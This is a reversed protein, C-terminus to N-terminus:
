KRSIDVLARMFRWFKGTKLQPPAPGDTQQTSTTASGTDVHGLQGVSEYVFRRPALNVGVRKEIENVARMALLSHGGLEFFNDSLSVHPVGLLEQWVEAIARELPTRPATTHRAERRADRPAPLARLDVKGGPLVPFSQVCIVHRPWMYPPLAHRLAAWVASEALPQAGSAAYYLLLSTEHASDQLANVIARDVGPLKEVLREIEQPEVRFGRVKVQKDIRGLYEVNGDDRYRGLDGTRYCLDLPDNTYPNRVFKGRTLEPDDLYGQSLYPTRIFIESPHGIGSLTGAESLLLLQTANIGQGIPFKLEERDATLAYSSMAQPTESAGYFNVHVANPAAATMRQITARSLVEGGWFVRRLSTLASGSHAGTAIVQGLAPTLHAISVAERGLWEALRTPELLMSQEPVCLTAGIALPTFIDRLLPDHALGSLLSFRDLETLGHRDVHWDVFHPLAAHGTVIGKPRGSTGSTFSIYAPASADVQPLDAASAPFQARLDTSALAISVRPAMTTDPAVAPHDRCELILRPRIQSLCDANRAEPYAGDLITFVAGARTCGLVAAVLALRRDAVIAVREGHTVGRAHLWQAIGRSVEELEGYSLQGDRSAIAIRHPSQTARHVFQDHVRAARATGLSWAPDPLVARAKDTVLSFAAIRADPQSAVQALLHGFQEALCSVQSPHLLDTRFSLMFNAAEEKSDIYMTLAFKAAQDFGDLRTCALGKLPQADTWGGVSNVLVDFLPNRGAIRPPNIATVLDDFAQDQHQYAELTTLRVRDLAESFTPNGSLSTRLVATNLLPGVLNALEPRDRCAIPTGVAIDDQGCWRMLLLKLAALYVMYMTAGKRKALANLDLVVPRPLSFRHSASAGSQAMMGSANLPLNLPTTDALRRKWYRLQPELEGSLIRAQNWAVYDLFGPGGPAIPTPQGDCRAAYVAALDNRMLSESWGDSVLHHQLVQLIHEHEGMKVLVARALPAVTLDFPVKREDRLLRLMIEERDEDSVAVLDHVQLPLTVSESLRQRPTGDAEVICIRLSDHRQVLAQLSARLASDNLPGDLRLAWGIHYATPDDGLQQALWMSKQVSSLPVAAADGRAAIPRSTGSAGAFLQVVRGALSAVTPADFLERLPLELQFAVRLKAIVQMAVLSHGGLEFFNDHIGFREVKLVDRWADWVAQETADRPAVASDDADFSQPAPLAKRDIKGNPLSPMSELLVFQSPVMYEPLLTTMARKIAAVKTNAGVVYAVLRKLGQSEERVIVACHRVGPQAGLAAEIEGLEIRYGRLKVQSDARGCFEINGDGRLRVMDGSRYLRQGDVFPNAVFRQATLDPRNLYGRALGCGGIYLEGVVGAPVPQMRADLVYCQVNAIPRGIPVTQSAGMEVPWECHTADISNETPGYFNGIKVQPLRQQLQQALSLDLAEGGSIVYRLRGPKFGPEDLLARLASPVMQLITIDRDLLQRAVTASDRQDGPPLLVVSAGSCLPMFLEVLSADFSISTLQLVRDAATPRLQQQLWQGHNTLGSHPLLVGKPQGTSGSTYIVYALHDPETRCDLDHDDCAALEDHALDVCVIHRAASHPLRAILRSHSLVLPAGADDLQFALREAPLDPDLALFAGGAKLVAMLAVMLQLSREMCVAVIVDPGVGQDRLHNALRNAQANLARYSLREDDFMVAVADPTRQVQQEFARHVYLQNDFTQRTDNWGSLLLAREAEDLMPLELVPRSEDGCMADTLLTLHVVMREITTADYLDTDYEICGQLAQDQERLELTLDFKAGPNPLTAREIRLSGCAREGLGAAQLVVMTQILPMRSTDRPLKLAEVVEEFPLHQHEYASLATAKIQALLGAVTLLNDFDTRLALTNAFYGVVRELERRDRNAVVTGTIVTSQASYRHMLAQWAAAVVMFLSTQTRRALARLAGLRASSFIIPVSAGHFRQVVPRRRDTPLDIAAPVGQLHQTWYALERERVGSDLWQREWATFDAYQLEPEPLDAARGQSLAEYLQCLEDILVGVAWGDCVSHHLTWLLRHEQADLTVLTARMPCDRTLEFRTQAEHTALEELRQMKSLNADDHLTVHNMHWQSSADFALMPIDGTVVWRSRLLDHRQMLGRLSSQLAAPDVCGHLSLVVPVNYLASGRAFEHWFYMRLQAASLPLLGARASSSLRTIARQSGPVARLMKDQALEALEAVTPADFIARTTLDVGLKECLRSTVQMALLSHGGLDFFNDRVGFDPQNLADAWLAWVMEQVPTSPAIREAVESATAAPPPLRSRDLKGNPLRPLQQMVVFARPVMAAPLRASLHQRMTATTLRSGAEAVVYAILEAPAESHTRRALVICQAVGPLDALTATVEAPEIRVGRIKVQDDLRGALELMGDARYRGVDGTFYLLDGPDSRQSNPRFRRKTEDDLGLYGLSLYPTRIAIEGREGIGCPVGTPGFVLAQAGPLSLGVPQLGPEVLEPVVYFCKTFSAETAGYLNVVGSSSPFRSRWARVVVDTLPEGAVCVWRVKISPAQEGGLRLWSSLVTPTTHVITVGQRGCWALPDLLDAEEPICLTAGTTLPVYVDRLFMGFNLSSLLAIKDNAAVAFKTAHWQVLHALGMHSALVPKPHGTSGSTFVVCIPDDPGPRVPEFTGSSGSQPAVDALEPDIRLLTREPGLALDIADASEGAIHCLVTAGADGLMRERRAKPLAPDLVVFVGGCMTTATMAAVLGPSRTGQLAVVAATRTAVGRLRIALECCHAAFERYTWVRTGFRLAVADPTRRAQDHFKSAVDHLAVQNLQVTADPLQVRRSVIALCHDSVPADPREAVQRLLHVYQEALANLAAEDCANVSGQITCRLGAAPPGVHLDIASAPGEHNRASGDSSEHAVAVFLPNTWSAQGAEPPAAFADFAMDGHRRADIIGQHIRSVIESFGPDGSLDTRLPLAVLRGTPGRLDSDSKAPDRQHLSAGIVVDDQGSWRMLLLKFVAVCVAFTSTRSSTALRKVHLVLEPQLPLDLRLSGAVDALQRAKPKIPLIM